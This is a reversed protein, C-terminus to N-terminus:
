RQSRDRYSFITVTDALFGPGFKGHVPIVVSIRQVGTAQAYIRWVMQAAARASDSTARLDSSAFVTTFAVTLENDTRRVRPSHGFQLAVSDAVFAISIPSAQGTDDKRQCGVRLLENQGVGYKPAGLVRYFGIQEPSAGAGAVTRSLSISLLLETGDRPDRLREVCQSKGPRDPNAPDRQVLFTSPLDTAARVSSPVPRVGSSDEVAVSDGVRDALAPLPGLSPALSPVLPRAAITAVPAPTASPPKVACAAVVAAAAVLMRGGVRASLFSIRTETMAEIRRRLSPGDELLATAALISRRVTSRRSGTEILLAGYRAVDISKATQALVRRDCDTEIALRLNRMQLWLLPNWPALTLLAYGAAVTRVDHARLHELEHALVLEREDSALAVVWQPVIIRPRVLGVVAPGFTESVSVHVGDLVANECRRRLFRVRMSDAGLLVILVFSSCCAIWLAVRSAVIHEIAAAIATLDVSLPLRRHAVNNVANGGPTAAAPSGPASVGHARVAPSGTEAPGAARRVVLPLIATGAMAGLWLWRTARASRRLPSAIAGAALMFEGGLLLGYLAIGMM